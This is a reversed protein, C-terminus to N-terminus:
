LWWAKLADGIIATIEEPEATRPRASVWKGPGQWISSAIDGDPRTREREIVTITSQTYRTQHLEYWRQSYTDGASYVEVPEGQLWCTGVSETGENDPGPVIVDENYKKWGSSGAQWKRNFRQNFLTGAVIISSFDWPHDHIPSYGWEVLRQDWIQLRIDSGGNLYTRLMGFGQVQWQFEDACTLIDKVDDKVTM